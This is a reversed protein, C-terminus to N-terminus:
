KSEEKEIEGMVEKLKEIGQPIAAKLKAANASGLKGEEVLKDIYAYLKESGDKQVYELIATHAKNKLEERKTDDMKCGFGLLLVVGLMMLTKKMTRNEKAEEWAKEGSTVVSFVVPIIKFREAWAKPKIWRLAGFTKRWVRLMNTYMRKDAEIRSGTGYHYEIDHIAFVPEYLSLADTLARRKGVDWREPGVGNCAHKLEDAVKEWFVDPADLNYKQATSRLANIQVATYFPKECEEM